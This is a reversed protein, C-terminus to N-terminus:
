EADGGGASGDGALRNWARIVLISAVSSWLAIANAGLIADLYGGVMHINNLADAAAAGGVAITLVLFNTADEADIAMAGYVLGLIVLALPLINEPILDPAVGHVISILLILGVIIKTLM